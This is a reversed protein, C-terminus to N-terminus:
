GKGEVGSGLWSFSTLGTTESKSVKVTPQRFRVRVGVRVRSRVRVRARVRVQVRARDRVKV